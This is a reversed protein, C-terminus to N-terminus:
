LSGREWLLHMLAELTGGAIARAKDSITDCYELIGRPDIDGAKMGRHVPTGEPLLGRVVGSISALVPEGEVTAVPDGAQVLQRIQVLPKWIGDRCARIVREAGVGEIIGPVGTNPIAQGQYLVRGLDHGRKTEVVAHCDVGACFGPGLAIVVPADSIRTGLNRKAIIADIIAGPTLTHVLTGEPDVAVPIEGQSLVQAIEAPTDARRATVGEVTAFGQYVATSFAVTCRVTTPQAIETMVVSFGCQHLRYGVGTALDGAGKILILM